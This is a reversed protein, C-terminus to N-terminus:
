TKVISRKHKYSRRENARLTINLMKPRNLLDVNLAVKLIEAYNQQDISQMTLIKCSKNPFLETPWVEIITQTLNFECNNIDM